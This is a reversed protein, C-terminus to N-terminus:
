LVANVPMNHGEQEYGVSVFLIHKTLLLDFWLEM